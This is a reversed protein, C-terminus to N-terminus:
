YLLNTALTGSIFAIYFKNKFSVEGTEIYVTKDILRGLGVPM